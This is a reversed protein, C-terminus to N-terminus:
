EGRKKSQATEHRDRLAPFEALLCKVAAAKRQEHVAMDCDDCTVIKTTEDLAWLNHRGTEGCVDCPGLDPPQPGEKDAYGHIEALGQETHNEPM